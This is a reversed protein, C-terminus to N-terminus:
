LNILKKYLTDDFEIIGKKSNETFLKQSKEGPFYIEKFGKEKPLSKLLKISITIKIL